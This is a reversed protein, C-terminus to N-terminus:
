NSDIRAMVGFSDLRIIEAVRNCIRAIERRMNM